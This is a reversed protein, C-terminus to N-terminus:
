HCVISELTATSENKQFWNKVAENKDEKPFTKLRGPEIL